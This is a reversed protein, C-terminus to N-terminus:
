PAIKDHPFLAAKEMFVNWAITDNIPKHLAANIYIIKELSTAEAPCSYTIETSISRAFLNDEKLLLM